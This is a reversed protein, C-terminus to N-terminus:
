GSRRRSIRIVAGGDGGGPLPHSTGTKTLLPISENLFRVSWMKQDSHAKQIAQSRNIISSAVLV